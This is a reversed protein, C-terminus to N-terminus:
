LVLLVDAVSALRAGQFQGGIVVSGALTSLDLTQSAHLDISHKCSAVSGPTRRAHDVFAEDQLLLVGTDTLFCRADWGRATAATLLETAQVVYAADTVVLGFLM